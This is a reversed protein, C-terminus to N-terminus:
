KLIAGRRSVFQGSALRNLRALEEATNASQYWVWPPLGQSHRCHGSQVLVEVAVADLESCLEVPITRWAQHCATSGSLLREALLPFVGAQLVVPFPELMGNRNTATVPAGTLMARELLCALMSPPMLPLDVPLFINWEASSVALASVVGGMPGSDPYDDPIVTAFSSLDSRSGAIRASIRAGAFLELAVQVLPKSAFEALAKDSGMRSSQGGALVFGAVSESTLGMM